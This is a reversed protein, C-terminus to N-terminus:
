VVNDVFYWYLLIIIEGNFKLEGLPICKLLILKTSSVQLHRILLNRMRHM